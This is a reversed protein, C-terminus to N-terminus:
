QTDHPDSELPCGSCLPNAKKCHEKGVRVLLAHFENFMETDLALRDTFLEQVEHYSTESPVLGHRQMIRTTYADIVFVPKRAAYLVISDATEPGIGNLALLKCRLTPANEKFLKDLDGEYDKALFEVFRKIKKAKQNYYGSPRILRALEATAVGLLGDMSLLAHSKLNAIAKEVNTWATNQTLVAGIVCELPSDGPWWNQPGYRKLLSGYISKLRAKTNM